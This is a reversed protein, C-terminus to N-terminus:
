VGPFCGCLLATWNGKVPKETDQFEVYWLACPFCTPICNFTSDATKTYRTRGANHQQLMYDILRLYM